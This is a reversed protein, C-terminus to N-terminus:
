KYTGREIALVETSYCETVKQQVETASGLQKEWYTRIAARGHLGPQKHPLMIAEPAYLSALKEVDRRAVAHIFEGALKDCSARPALHLSGAQSRWFSRSPRPRRLQM